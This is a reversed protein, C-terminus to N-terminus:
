ENCKGCILPEQLHRRFARNCNPCRVIETDPHLVERIKQFTKDSDPNQSLRIMMQKAM